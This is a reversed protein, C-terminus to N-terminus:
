DVLKSQYVIKGNKDIITIIFINLDSLKNCINEIKNESITYLAMAIKKNKINQFQKSYDKIFTKKSNYILKVQASYKNNEWETFIISIRQLNNINSKLLRFDPLFLITGRKTITIGNFPTIIIGILIVLLLIPWFIKILIPMEFWYAFVMYSCPVIILLSIIQLLIIAIKNIFSIHKNKYITLDNNAM